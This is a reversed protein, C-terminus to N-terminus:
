EYVPDLLVSRTRPFCKIVLYVLVVSPFGIKSVSSIMYYSYLDLQVSVVMGVINGSVRLSYFMKNM